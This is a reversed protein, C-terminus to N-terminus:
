PQYSREAHALVEARSFYVDRFLGQTFMQAQDTFHPSAPDGSEGGSLIAKAHVAPGFEVAAVFGNGVSGYIKKTKRPYPSDFSALAGWNSSAFGVALSPKADDFPQVIDDTLRQYRNIEGWPIQWGGFDRQLKELAASLADIRESSTLHGVLYDYVPEDADRAERGKHELLQQGWSIALATPVSDAGTRRDWASLTAIPGGLVDRRPDGAALEDFDKLLPPLLVDFATLHSDYGAAILSDLTVNHINQLVEVAHIGRPNEGKIWMYAPYNERKPSATGAASFPWNNTNQIWGTDPNLLTITDEIAHPGQWETAPNSGDVPHTYDFKTDRRPIFNGHFYAITGDADAYVTNNSTDTRMEQIKRFSGYDTTKTRLYSQALASVPDQLLRISIWRADSRRADGRRADGRRDDEARIIPGHHSYYVTFKRQQSRTGQKFSVAVVRAQLKRLGDGYRYYLGDSKKVITEAYEDIADGGYSTHMWGNHSNFGQYVFFQGWTVAGYADLGQESVMQLESRFYFSTHPNIWLLAHGSASRDPAIAFGNSGGPAEELTNTSFNPRARGALAYRRPRPSYFDRLKGLDISEIDGGISGETFCLAMWPEFRHIVKPAVAPHKSLFYNLGDSWALMLTKLWAPSDRFDRRLRRPDVFLRQRLDSYVATEGEAQALMGLGNLYNREIRGFDDEAQAYIAGFVTDADSKGYIHAIGWIDRVIRVNGARQRWRVGDDPAAAFGDVSVAFLIAFALIRM